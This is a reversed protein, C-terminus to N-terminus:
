KSQSCYRIYYYRLLLLKLQYSSLKKNKGCNCGM